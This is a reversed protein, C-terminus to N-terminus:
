SGTNGRARHLAQILAEAPPHPAFSGDAQPYLRCTLSPAAPSSPASVDEGGIRISPSGYFQYQQAAEETEVEIMEIVPAVGEARLVERLVALAASAHPCSAFYLFQIRPVDLNDHRGSPSAM